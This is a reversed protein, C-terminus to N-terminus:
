LSVARPSTVRVALRRGVVTADGEAAGDVAGPRVATRAGEDRPVGVRPAVGRAVGERPVAAGVPTRAGRGESRSPADPEARVPPDTRAGARPLVGPRATLGDVPEEARGEAGTRGEVLGRSLTLGEVPLRELVARGAGDVDDRLRVGVIALGDLGTRPLEGDARGEVGLRPLVGDARGDVDVRLRGCADRGEAETGRGLAEVREVGDAGRARVGAGAGDVRLRGCADRGWAELGCAELGCAELGCAELGCAELAAGGRAEVRM